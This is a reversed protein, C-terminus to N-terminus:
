AAGEELLGLEDLAADLEQTEGRALEEDAERLSDRLDGAEVEVLRALVTVKVAPLGTPLIVTEVQKVKMGTLDFATAGDRRPDWVVRQITHGNRTVRIEPFRAM